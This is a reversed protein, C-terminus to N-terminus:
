DVEAGDLEERAARQTQEEDGRPARSRLATPEHEDAPLGGDLPEELDDADAKAHSSTSAGGSQM